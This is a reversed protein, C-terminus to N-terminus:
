GAKPLARAAKLRIPSRTAAAASRLPM